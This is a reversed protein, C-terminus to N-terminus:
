VAGLFRQGHDGFQIPSVRVIRVRLEVHKRHREILTIQLLSRLPCLPQATSRGKAPSSACKQVAVEHSWSSGLRLALRRVPQEM